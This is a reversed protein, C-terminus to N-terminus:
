IPVFNKVLNSDKPILVLIYHRPMLWSISRMLNEVTEHPHDAKYINFVLQQVAIGQIKRAMLMFSPTKIGNKILFSRLINRTHMPVFMDSPHGILVDEEASIIETKPVIPVHDTNYFKQSVHLNVIDGYTFVWDSSEGSPNIVIGCGNILIFDDKMNRICFSEFSQMPIPTYLAFYPFGDPGTVLEPDGKRFSATEVHDLLSQRWSEGRQDHPVTFLDVMIQTKTIDCEPRTPIPPPENAM